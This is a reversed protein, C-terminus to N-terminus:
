EKLPSRRKSFAEVELRGMFTLRFGREKGNLTMEVLGADLLTRLVHRSEEGRFESLWLQRNEPTDPVAQAASDEGM